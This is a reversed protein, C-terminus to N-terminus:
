KCERHARTCIFSFLFDRFIFGMIFEPAYTLTYMNSHVNWIRHSTLPCHWYRLTGMMTKWGTKPLHSVVSQSRRFHLFFSFFSFSCHSFHLLFVALIPFLPRLYSFRYRNSLGMRGADLSYIWKGSPHINWSNPGKKDSGNWKRYFCFDPHQKLNKTVLFHYNHIICLTILHM